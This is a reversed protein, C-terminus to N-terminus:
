FKFDWILDLALTAMVYLLGVFCFQFFHLSYKKMFISYITWYYVEITHHFYIVENKICSFIFFLSYKILGYIKTNVMLPPLMTVDVTLRGTVRDFTKPWDTLQQLPPIDHNICHSTLRRLCRDNKKKGMKLWM